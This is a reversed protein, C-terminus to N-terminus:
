SGTYQFIYLGSDRDSALVYKVGGIKTVQVGWFDNGGEDIFRGVEEIGTSGFKAVRFGADYYSFYAINSDPDTAVEHVSLAGFDDAFAQQGAEPVAYWGVQAMTGAKLLRVYGWGDFVATVDVKEGRTGIAPEKTADYPLSYDPTTNFIKHYAEHTTCVAVVPQTFAGSGCFPPLPEPDAIHRNVLLVADYGAAKAMDAKEGPFCAEEPASPDGSPGRQLVVIKEEGPLLGSWNFSSAAPIAASTPCGYGGYVTPGNLRKDALTTVSAAGGVSTSPYEGANPGTTVRFAGTRYPAFDEDTGIIYKNDRSFEAQHANGEPGFAPVLDDQAPYDSDAIFLPNAPDNVNLKVWGADWYSALMTWTGNIQKVDVDHFFSAAFNGFGASQANQADPWNELGTESILVPKKPNTIDMIDVDLTELDDVMVLYLRTGQQWMFASHIDSAHHPTNSGQPNPTIGGTFDGVNEVLKVPKLPNTVNWLSAGGKADGEGTTECTEYNQVLIEGKFYATEVHIVQVGEGTWSNNHGPIVGVERPAAPNSIDVVYTGGPGCTPEDFIGLYAYNGYTGVDAIRGPAADHMRVKGVLRVNLNTPALHGTTGGHQHEFVDDAHAGAGAAGFTLLTAFAAAVVLLFTGKKRLAREKM